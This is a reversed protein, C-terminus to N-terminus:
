KGGTKVRTQLRMESASITIGPVGAPTSTKLLVPLRLSVGGVIREPSVVEPNLSMITKTLQSDLRQGLYKLAIADLGEGARATVTIYPEPSSNQTGVFVPYPTAMSSFVVYAAIAGGLLLVAYVGLRIRERRLHRKTYTLILEPRGLPYDTIAAPITLRLAQRSATTQGSATVLRFDATPKVPHEPPKSSPELPEAPCASRPHPAPLSPSEVSSTIQPQALSLNLDAVAEQVLPADIRKLQRAFALSLSNFCISNIVRPIGNSLAPIRNLAEPTFLSPGRYGAVRMRHGIYERVETPDLPDLRATM